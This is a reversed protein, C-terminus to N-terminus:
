HSSLFADAMSQLTECMFCQSCHFFLLRSFRVAGVFFGVEWLKLAQLCIIEKSQAILWALLWLLVGIFWKRQSRQLTKSETLASTVNSAQQLARHTHKHTLTLGLPPSFVPVILLASISFASTSYIVAHAQTQLIWWWEKSYLKGHKLLTM